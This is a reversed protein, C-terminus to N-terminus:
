VEGPVQLGAKLFIPVPEQYYPAAPTVPSWCVWAWLSYFLLVTRIVDHTVTQLRAM